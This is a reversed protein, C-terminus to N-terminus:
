AAVAGHCKKYKKGSGCPCPDNRGIKPDVRVPKQKEEAPEAAGGEGMLGMGTAEAHVARVAEPRPRRAERPAGVQLKYILEVAERDIQGVMEEFMRYAEKKYEILPDRQGYARLGIGTRLQDMEYLHERWREDITSLLAFKELQRMIEPSIAAEKARYVQLAMEKIKEVLTDFDIKGIEEQSIKLDVLFTRRLDDKLATWNWNEPIADKDCHAFVIGEAVEEIQVAVDESLDEKELVELRRAYIVERQKNMVNDYDLLHKRIAFNQIEVRKQAREIAKTVMRHEIVEGEELGLRDMVAAIRDSGFLRMLDDELSLYFRSSGPDGQRGSRGRLQRDIRRAEHRETGIIHLGCPVKAYCDLEKLYPCPEVDPDLDVLACHSHKVVGPGLKIDTGRGAMNTAITVAGAQGARSVIEAEQQHYKANLVSHVIGQRKLMRSLTESVDVSTTGVLVPKGKQHYETAEEIIANYKERKTRFVQDNYDIRRVPKNTPISTVDLKYIEWFEGAETVATGTMGALKDYLRFFNQLTVTALTQTEGEVKVGEKAEIAQHLGDSYRRGPMLRGTFEDVILIKGDQVVYEVDKEFLAYSKLLQSINHVKESREAHLAYLKEKRQQKDRDSLNEDGEIESLGETIDPIIFLKQDEPSLQSRGPENLECTNEREDISYYLLDDIEHLKKDRLYDTEVRHILKKMGPEKGLKLFKKNKPAGRQVALLKIGAEYEKEGDGNKLLEEAEAILKNTLVTQKKVVQEVLPKMENYRNTSHSVPGSIILPTRAEDILVSDVEDVIAYAFGRQVRDELRVSMNDRLYDFGFENNTGYTIDCDYQIRRTAPDMENQICGVTLGLSQFVPGMWEADRRALYDNVTVLHAGKGELANLYLPLTAVLTKGEGTAMEAIKGQHLVIGGILQVDFPIMEWGIPMAVVPWSKGCLRRCAEKVVAFAEPLLDDLTEGEELRKKFEATKDALQTDSLDKLAPYIENIQEVLPMIKKIDREHKSGFIATIFNM